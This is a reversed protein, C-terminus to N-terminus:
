HLFIWLELHLLQNSLFHWLQSFHLFNPPQMEQFDISERQLCNFLSNFYVFLQDFTFFFIDNFNADNFFTSMKPQRQHRSMQMDFKVAALLLTLLHSWDVTSLLCNQLRPPYILALLQIEANWLWDPKMKWEVTSKVLWCSWRWSSSVLGCDLTLM